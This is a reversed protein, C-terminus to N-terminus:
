GNHNPSQQQSNVGLLESSPTNKQTCPAGCVPCVHRVAKAARYKLLRYISQRTVGVARAARQVSLGYLAMMDLAQATRSAQQGLRM